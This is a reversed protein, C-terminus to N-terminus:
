CGYFKLYKEINSQVYEASHNGTFIYNQSNIGKEKLIKHLISCGEYFRGEDQDGADLYVDMDSSINNNRAIAIPDYKEWVDMDKFYPKDEDELELELAPMHGGVKSFMHQHRLTNHLAVYGGASIGGIYRGKRDKITNFTKDILPVIEKMFYDEYMGINIIINNDGHAPMEKCILSSNLGRSNEIRPCVIIMPKIEGNKIMGDAKINIDMEFMVNESGSRGHIFYLVPLPTLSNYCEPLYVLISMEKGLVPSYFNVKEVKSQNM